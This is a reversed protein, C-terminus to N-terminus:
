NLYASATMLHMAWDAEVAESIRIEAAKKPAFIRKILPIPHRMMNKAVYM